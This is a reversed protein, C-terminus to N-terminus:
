LEYNSTSQAYFTPPLHVKSHLSVFQAKSTYGYSGSCPLCSVINHMLSIYRCCILLLQNSLFNYITFITAYSFTLLSTEIYPVRYCQCIIYKTNLPYMVADVLKDTIYQRCTNIYTNSLKSTTCLPCSRKAISGESSVM